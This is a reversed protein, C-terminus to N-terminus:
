LINLSKNFNASFKTTDDTMREVLSNNTYIYIHIKEIWFMPQVHQNSVDNSM